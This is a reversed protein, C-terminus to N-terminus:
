DDSSCQKCECGRPVGVYRLTEVFGRRGDPRPCYLRVPRPISMTPLCCDTSNNHLNQQCRGYCTRSLVRTPICDEFHVVM